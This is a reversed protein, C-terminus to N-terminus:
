QDPSTGWGDFDCDFKYGLDCMQKTWEIVVSDAMKMKTTWGTIVYETKSDAAFHHDVQYNLKKLETALQIAKDESNTYFFYELKLEMEATVNIKRLQELTQPAGEIQKDRNSSFASESVYQGDNSKQKFFNFLGM